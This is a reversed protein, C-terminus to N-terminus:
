KLGRKQKYEDWTEQRAQEFDADWDVAAEELSQRIQHAAFRTEEAKIKEQILHQLREQGLKRLLDDKIDIQITM